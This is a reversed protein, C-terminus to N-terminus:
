PATFWREMTAAAISKTGSKRVTEIRSNWGDATGLKAATSCLILKQLRYSANIGLWIGVAGGLSLGCFSFKAISLEDALGLVDRGLKDFDYPGRSVESRGHGRTDYRLVRFSKTLLPLQADWMAFDTGLSHSLLLVPADEPGSFEYHIQTANLKAVNTKETPASPM